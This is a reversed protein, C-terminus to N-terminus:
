PIQNLNFKSLDNANEAYLAKIARKLDHKAVMITRRVVNKRSIKQLFAFKGNSTRILRCPMSIDEEKVFTTDNRKEFGITKLCNDSIKQTSQNQHLVRLPVNKIRFQISTKNRHRM